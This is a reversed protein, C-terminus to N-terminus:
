CTVNFISLAYFTDLYKQCPVKPTSTVHHPSDDIEIAIPRKM